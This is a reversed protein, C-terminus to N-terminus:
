PTNTPAPTPTDTPIPTPTPTPVPTNTPVPTFTNTNGPTPTNTPVPTNTPIPTKTPDTQVKITIGLTAGFMNSGDSFRFYASYTGPKTPASIAVSLEAWDGPHVLKGLNGNFTPDMNTGSLFMLRYVFKWDCTGNNAVKWTKTFVQGPKFVTGNPYNVDRVFALNNCGFGLSAANVTATPPTGTVTPTFPTGLTVTYLPTPTQTNVLPNLATFQTPTPFRTETQTVTSSPPTYMATQTQFFGAVMTGVASTMLIQPDDTPANGACASLLFTLILLITWYKRLFQM